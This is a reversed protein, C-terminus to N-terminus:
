SQSAMSDLAKDSDKESISHLLKIELPEPTKCVNEVYLTAIIQDNKKKKGMWDSSMRRWSCYGGKRVRLGRVFRVCMVIKVFQSPICWM